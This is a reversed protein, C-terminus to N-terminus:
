LYSGPVFCRGRSTKKAQQKFRSVHTPIPIYYTNLSPFPKRRLFTLYDKRPSVICMMNYSIEMITPKGGINFQQGSTVVMPSSTQIGHLPKTNIQLRHDWRFMKVNGGRVLPYESPRSANLNKKLVIYVRFNTGLVFFCSLTIKPILVRIIHVYM